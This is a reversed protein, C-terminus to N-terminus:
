TTSRMMAVPLDAKGILRRMMLTQIQFTSSHKVRIALKASVFNHLFRFSLQFGPIHTSM